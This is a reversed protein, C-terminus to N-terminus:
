WPSPLLDLLVLLGPKPGINPQSAKRGVGSVIVEPLEQGAQGPHSIPIRCFHELEIIILLTLLLCVLLLMSYLLKDPKQLITGSLEM